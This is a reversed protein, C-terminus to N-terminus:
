GMLPRIKGTNSDDFWLERPGTHQCVVRLYRTVEAWSGTRVVYFHSGECPTNGRAWIRIGRTSHHTM